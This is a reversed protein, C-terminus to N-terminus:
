NFHSEPYYMSPVAQWFPLSYFQSEKFGSRLTEIGVLFYVVSEKPGVM